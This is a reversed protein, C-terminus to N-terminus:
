SLQVNLGAEYGFRFADAREDGFLERARDWRNGEAAWLLTAETRVRAYAEDWDLAGLASGDVVVGHAEASRLAARLGAESGGCPFAPGSWGWRPALEFGAAEFTSPLRYLRDALSDGRCRAVHELTLRRLHPPRTPGDLLADLFADTTPTGCGLTLTHFNPLSHLYPFLRASDFSIRAIELRELRKFRALFDDLPSEARPNDGGVPWTLDLDMDGVDIRELNPAFKGLFPGDWPYFFPASDGTTISLLSPSFFDVDPLPPPPHEDYVALRLDRLKPLRSIKRLWGIWARTREPGEFMLGEKPEVALVELRQLRPTSTSARIPDDVEDNGVVADILDIEVCYLHLERLGSLRSIFDVLSATPCIQEDDPITNPDPLHDVPLRQGQLWELLYCVRLSESNDEDRMALKLEVVNAELGPISPAARCLAALQEYGNVVIRRYHHRRQVPELQRCLPQFPPQLLPKTDGAQAFIADLLELPLDLLTSSTPTSSSSPKHVM